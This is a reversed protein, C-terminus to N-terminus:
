NRQLFAHLRRNEVWFRCNSVGTLATIATGSLPSRQPELPAQAGQVVRVPEAEPQVAGQL